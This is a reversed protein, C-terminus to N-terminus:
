ESQNSKRLTICSLLLPHKKGSCLTSLLDRMCTAMKYRAKDGLIQDPNDGASCAPTWVELMRSISAFRLYKPPYPDGSL